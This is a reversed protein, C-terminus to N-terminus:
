PLAESTNQLKFGKDYKSMIKTYTGDKKLRRLAANFEDRLLPDNFAASYLTPPVVRHIKYGRGLPALEGSAIAQKLNYEFVKKESFLFDVRGKYLLQIQISQRPTEIYLSLEDKIDAIDKVLFDAGQFAALRKGRLDELQLIKQPNDGKSILVNDFSMYTDSLYFQDALNQTAITYIDISKNKLANYARANPLFSPVVTYKMNKVIAGILEIELGDIQNKFIFPPREQGFGIRLIQPTQSTDETERQAASPAVFFLACCLAALIYRPAKHWTHILNFM